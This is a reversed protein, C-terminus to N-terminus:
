PKEEIKVRVLSHLPYCLNDGVMISASRCAAQAEEKAKHYSSEPKLKVTTGDSFEFILRYEM